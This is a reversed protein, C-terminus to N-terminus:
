LEEDKDDDIDPLDAIQDESIVEPLLRLPSSPPLARVSAVAQTVVDRVNKTDFPKTIYGIVAPQLTLRPDLNRIGTVIVVATEPYRKQLREILWVGDHGPMRIDVLAVNARRRKMIDLATDADLAIDVAYGLPALARALITCVNEEDDVVLIRATPHTEPILRNSQM